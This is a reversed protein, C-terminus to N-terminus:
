AEEIADTMWMFAKGIQCGYGEDDDVASALSAVVNGRWSPSAKAMTVWRDWVDRHAHKVSYVIAVMIGFFQCEIEKGDPGFARAQGDESWRECIIRPVGCRFCVHSDPFRISGQVLKRENNAARSHNHQCQSIPHMSVWRRSQCLMCVNKWKHLRERM